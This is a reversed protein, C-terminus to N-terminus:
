AKKINRIYFTGTVVGILMSPVFIHTGQAAQLLSTLAPGPCFGGLGWGIGFLASGVVLRWDLTQSSPIQFSPELLPAKRRRVFAYGTATVLIAGGMVFALSPDWTGSIDLFNQVKAPDTMGSLMLGFGFILGLILNAIIRM